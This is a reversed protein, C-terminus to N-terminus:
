ELKSSLPQATRAAEAELLAEREAEKAQADFYEFYKRPIYVHEYTLPLTGPHLIDKVHETFRNFLIEMNIEDVQSGTIACALPNYYYSEYVYSLLKEREKEDAKEFYDAPIGDKVNNDGLYTLIHAMEDVWM